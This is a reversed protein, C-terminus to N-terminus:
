CPNLLIGPLKIYKVIRFLDFLCANGMQMDCIDQTVPIKTKLLNIKWIIRSQAHDYNQLLGPNNGDSLQLYHLGLSKEWPQFLPPAVQQLIFTLVAKGGQTGLLTIV